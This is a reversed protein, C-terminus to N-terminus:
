VHLATCINDVLEGVTKSKKLVGDDLAGVRELKAEVMVALEAFDFSDIISCDELRMEDKLDRCPIGGGKSIAVYVAEKVKEKKM